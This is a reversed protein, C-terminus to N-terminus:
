PAPQSGRTLHWHALLLAEARGEHKVLDLEAGPFLLRAKYLSAHKDSSLGVARKWVQATVFEIRLHRAQLVSLISGFGCGFNFASAIGQKPMAGVREIIARAPRGVLSDILISQLAGGDIWSLRGDRIIPLDELREINGEPSLVAVAGSLGPDIGVVHTM